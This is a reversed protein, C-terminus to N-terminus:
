AMLLCGDGYSLFRFDHALAYQYIDKWADGVIAAILLLLTSNPQHFNTIIGKAIKLQYGPAIMIQTKIILKERNQQLLWNALAQLADTAPLTAAAQLDGYVDWQQIMLDDIDINPNQVLKLGMWYLSEITRLSTTGVAIIGKPHQEALQLITTSDVELFEAHMEHGQITESKVPQFTGAGVHLTVFLQNIQQRALQSFLQDTFHLGATPAAVSGAAKAYITQYRDEDSQEAKRNLYPPLPINGFLHLMEAFSLHAPQWDFCIIFFGNKTEHMRASLSQEGLQLRLKEEKWKKAGGVLCKWFVTQTQLMATTIDAYRDDPELCFIEINSGSPKPFLLRAQVVKTQNFVLTSGAPLFESLHKYQSESIQQQHYVLLKSEDRQALPYRAIREDPLEYSFDKIQIQGPHM